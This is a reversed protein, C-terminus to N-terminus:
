RHNSLLHELLPGGQIESSIATPAYACVPTMVMRLVGKRPLVQLCFRKRERAISKKRLMPEKRLLKRGVGVRGVWEGRARGREAGQRTMEEPWM